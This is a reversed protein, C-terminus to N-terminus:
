ETFYVGTIIAGTASITGSNLLCILEASSAGTARFYTKSLNPDAASDTQLGGSCPMIKDTNVTGSLFKLSPMDSPLTITVSSNSTGAVDYDLRFDFFVINGIREWRYRRNTGGSPTTGNWALNGSALLAGAPGTGFAGTKLLPYNGNTDKFFVDGNSNGFLKNGLHVRTLDTASVSLKGSFVYGKPTNVDNILNNYDTESPAVGLFALDDFQILGGELGAARADVRLLKEDYATRVKLSEFNLTSTQYNAYIKEEGLYQADFGGQITGSAQEVWMNAVSYQKAGITQEGHIKSGYISINDQDQLILGVGRHNEIQLGDFSNDSGGQGSPAGYSHVDVAAVAFEETVISTLAPTSLQVSTPTSYSAIKARLMQGSAGAGKVYVTLGVDDAAFCSADATLLTSGSNITCLPSGYYLQLATSDTYSTDVQVQTTSNYAVVRCKRRLFNPSPGWLSITHGIDAASFIPSSAVVTTGTQLVTIGTTNKYDWSHGGSFMTINEYRNNQPSYLEITTNDWSSFTIDSIRSQALVGFIGVPSRVATNVKSFFFGRISIARQYAYSSPNGFKFVYKDHGAFDVRITATEFGTGGIIERRQGGTASFDIENTVRYRGSPFILTAPLTASVTNLYNVALQIAATDDAVNDGIAGFDKVNIIEAFRDKLSRSVSSGTATVPLNSGFTQATIKKNTGTIAMSPDDVDIVQLLDDFAVNTAENLQSIKKNSM